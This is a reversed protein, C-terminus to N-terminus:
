LDGGAMNWDVAPHVESCARKGKEKPRDAGNQTRKETSFTAAVFIDFVIGFM